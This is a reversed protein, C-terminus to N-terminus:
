IYSRGTPHFSRSPRNTQVGFHQITPVCERKCGSKDGAKDASLGLMLDQSLGKSALSSQYHQQLSLVFLSAPGNALVKGEAINFSLPGANLKSEERAVQAAQAVIADFM